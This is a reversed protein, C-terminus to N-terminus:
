LHEIEVGGWRSALYEAALRRHCQSPEHESCLLCVGDVRERDLQEEVRREALLATYGAELDEWSGGGRYTKFLEETPALELHHEYDIEAIARLFYELDAQKAFGALQSSNSIRVDIVRTVGAEILRTFFSEATTKTFGITFLEL